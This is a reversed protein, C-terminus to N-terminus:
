EIRARQRPNWGLACFPMNFQLVATKPIEVPKEYHLMVFLHRPGGIRSTAHAPDNWGFRMYLILAELKSGVLRVACSAPVLTRIVVRLPPNLPISGVM